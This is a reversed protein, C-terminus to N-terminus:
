LTNAFTWLGDLRKDNWDGPLLQAIMPVMPHAREFTTATTLFMEARARTNEDPISALGDALVKPLEGRAGWATAEAWTITQFGGDPEALAQAFQRDSVSAPVAAAPPVYAAVKVKGAEILAMLEDHEKNGAAMGVFFELPKDAAYFNGLSDGKALTVAIQTADATTYRAKISM